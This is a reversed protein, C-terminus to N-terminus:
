CNATLFAREPPYLIVKLKLDNSLHSGFPFLRTDVTVAVPPFLWTVATAHLMTLLALYHVVTPHVALALVPELHMLLVALVHRPLLLQGDHRDM